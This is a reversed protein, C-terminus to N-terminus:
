SSWASSVTKMPSPPPQSFAHLAMLRPASVSSLNSPSQPTSKLRSQRASQMAPQTIARMNNLRADRSTCVFRQDDITDQAYSAAAPAIGQAILRIESLLRQEYDVQLGATIQSGAFLLLGLVTIALLGINVLLLRTRISM